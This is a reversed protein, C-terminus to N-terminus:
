DSVADSITGLCRYTLEADSPGHHSSTDPPPNGDATSAPM